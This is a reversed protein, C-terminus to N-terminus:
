SFTSGIFKEGYAFALHGILNPQLNGSYHSSDSEAGGLLFDFILRFTSPAPSPFKATVITNM